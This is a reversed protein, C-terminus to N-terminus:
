GAYKFEALNGLQEKTGGPLTVRDSVIRLDEYRVPVLKSGMGLFGGVSLVAYATKGDNGIIVDDVKGISDGAANTVNAGIVKSARFGTALTAPDVRTVGVTQPVGQAQAVSFASLLAMTAGSLLSISKM